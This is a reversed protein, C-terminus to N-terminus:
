WKCTAYYKITQQQQQQEQHHNDKNSISPVYVEPGQQNGSSILMETCVNISQQKNTNQIPKKTISSM